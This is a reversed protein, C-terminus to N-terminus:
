NDEALSPPSSWFLVSTPYFTRVASRCRSTPDQGPSVFVKLSEGYIRGDQPDEVAFSVLYPKANLV